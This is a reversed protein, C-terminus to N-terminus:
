RGAPPKLAILGRDLLRCLVLLTEEEPMPCLQLVPAVPMAESIRSLVFGEQQDLHEVLLEAGSRLPTLIADSPVRERLGKTRRAEAVAVLGKRASVSVPDLKLATQYAEEAEDLRGGAVLGAAASLGARLRDVASAAPHATKSREPALCGLTVLDHLALACEFDSTRLEDALERLTRGQSALDYVQHILASQTPDPRELSRFSVGDAALARGVEDWLKQRRLGETLLAETRLGLDLFAQKDIREEIFHFTGDDWLFLDFVAEQSDIVLAREFDLPDVLCESILIVGLRTGEREQRLLAEALPEAAVVGLRLLSQPLTERPDNSTASVLEGSAFVARKRISLRAVTLVGTLKRSSIIGLLDPFPLTSLDGHIAM